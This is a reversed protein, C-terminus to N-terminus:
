NGTSSVCPASDALQRAPNLQQDTASSKTRPLYFGTSAEPLGEPSADRPVSVNLELM